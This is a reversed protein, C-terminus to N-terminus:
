QRTWGMKITSKRNRETSLEKPGTDERIKTNRIKDKCTKGLSRRLYKMEATQITQRAKSILTWKGSRLTLIPITKYLIMKINKFIEKRGIKNNSKYKIQNIRAKQVGNSRKRFNDMM